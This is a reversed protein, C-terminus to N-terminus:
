QDGNTVARMREWDNSTYQGGTQRCAIAKVREATLAIQNQPTVVRASLRVDINRIDNDTPCLPSMFQNYRVPPLDQAYASTAASALLALTIVPSTARMYTTERM